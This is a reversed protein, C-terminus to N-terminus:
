RPAAARRARARTRGSTRSRGRRATWTWRASSRSARRRDARSPQRHVAAVRRRPHQRRSTPAAPAPPADPTPPSRAAGMQVITAGAQMSFSCRADAHRRHHRQDRLAPRARVRRGLRFRHLRHAQGAAREIDLVSRWDGPIKADALATDGSRRSRNRRRHEAHRRSRVGLPHHRRRLRDDVILPQIGTGSELGDTGRLTVLSQASAPAYLSDGTQSGM